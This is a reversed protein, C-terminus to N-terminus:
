LALCPIETLFLGTPCPAFDSCCDQFISCQPDCSCTPPSGRCLGSFCCGATYGAAVCSGHQPPEVTATVTSNTDLLCLCAHLLIIIILPRIIMGGAHHCSKKIICMCTCTLMLLRHILSGHLLNGSSCTAM